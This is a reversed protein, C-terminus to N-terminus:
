LIWKLLLILYGKRCLEADLINGIGLNVAFGGIWDGSSNRLVGGAGVNGFSIRRSGDVNLKVWGHRPFDWALM